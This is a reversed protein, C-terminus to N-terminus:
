ADDVGDASVDPFPLEAVLDVARGREPVAPGKRVACGPRVGLEMDRIRVGDRALRRIERVDFRCRHRQRAAGRVRHDIPAERM